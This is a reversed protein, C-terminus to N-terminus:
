SNPIPETRTAVPAAKTEFGMDGSVATPGWDKIDPGVMKKRQEASFIFNTLRLM